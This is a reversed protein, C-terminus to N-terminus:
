PTSPLGEIEVTFNGAYDYLPIDIYVSVNGYSNLSVNKETSGDSFTSNKIWIGSVLLAFALLIIAVLIIKKM